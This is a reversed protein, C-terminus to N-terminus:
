VRRSASRGRCRHLAAASVREAAGGNCHTQERIASKRIPDRRHRHHDVPVIANEIFRKGEKKPESWRHPWTSHCTACNEAFLQQGKAAKEQDIKGLIEEPWKPPALRRLLDESALQGKLDVTSEFLGDAPTKSTLDMKAFVGLVEGLNRLIPDKLVGSWQAWASQPVNWCFSPKVPALAARWNEPVGMRNSQVQNHILGLADM